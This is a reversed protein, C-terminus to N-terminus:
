GDSDMYGCKRDPHIFLLLVTYQFRWCRSVSAPLGANAGCTQKMKRERVFSRRHTQHPQTLSNHLTYMRICWHVTLTHPHCNTRRHGAPGALVTHLAMARQAQEWCSVTGRCHLRSGRTTTTENTPALAALGGVGGGAPLHGTEGSGVQSNRVRKKTKKKKREKMRDQTSIAVNRRENSASAIPKRRGSERERERM